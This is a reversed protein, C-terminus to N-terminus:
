TSSAASLDRLAKEEEPLVIGVREAQRLLLPAGARWEEVPQLINAYVGQHERLQLLLRLSFIRGVVWIPWYPLTLSFPALLSCLKACCTM